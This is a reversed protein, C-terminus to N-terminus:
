DQPFTFRQVMWDTTTECKWVPDHSGRTVVCKLEMFIYSLLLGMGTLLPYAKPLDNFNHYYKLICDLREKM